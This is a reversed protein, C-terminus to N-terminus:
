IRDEHQDYYPNRTGRSGYGNGYGNGPGNGYGNGYGNRAQTQSKNGMANYDYPDYYKEMAINEPHDKTVLARTSGSDMAELNAPEWGSNHNARPIRPIGVPKQFNADGFAGNSHSFQTSKKSKRCCLVIVAVLTAILLAGLVCSVIVVVLLYNEGCNFGSYGFDCAECTKSNVAKQGSPCAICSQETSWASMVYGDKCTCSVVGDRADCTTTVADCYSKTCQDIITFKTILGGSVAANTILQEVLEDTVDSSPLFFSEVDAFVSRQKCTTSCDQGVCVGSDKLSRRVDATKLALTRVVPVQGM